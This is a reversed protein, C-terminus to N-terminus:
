RLTAAGPKGKVLHPMVDGSLTGGDSGPMAQGLQGVEVGFPVGRLRSRCDM